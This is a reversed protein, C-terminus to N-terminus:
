PCATILLPAPTWKPPESGLCSPSAMGSAGGTKPVARQLSIEVDNVFVPMQEDDVLWGAEIGVRGGGEGAFANVVPETMALRTPGAEGDDM